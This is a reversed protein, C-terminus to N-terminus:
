LFKLVILQVPLPTTGHKVCVDFLVSDVFCFFLLSIVKWLLDLATETKTM